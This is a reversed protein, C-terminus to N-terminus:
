FQSENELARKLIFAPIEPTAIDFHGAFIQIMRRDSVNGFIADAERDGICRKFEFTQYRADRLREEAYSGVSLDAFFPAM